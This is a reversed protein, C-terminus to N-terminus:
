NDIVVIEEQGNVLLDLIGPKACFCAPHPEKYEISVESEYHYDIWVEEVIILCSKSWESLM